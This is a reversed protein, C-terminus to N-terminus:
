YIDVHVSSPYARNFSVTVSPCKVVATIMIFTIQSSAPFASARLKM